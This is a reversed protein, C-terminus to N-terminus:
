VVIVSLGFPVELERFIELARYDVEFGATDCNSRYGCFVDVTFHDKLQKLYDRYPKLSSWLALLHEDLPQNEDVPAEYMWMDHAYPKARASRKEGRRHVYSPILDLRQSIDELDDIEGFIRLTASYFFEYEDEVSDSM